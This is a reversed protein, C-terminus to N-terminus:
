LKRSGLACCYRMQVAEPRFTETGLGLKSDRWRRLVSSRMVSRRWDWEGAVRNGLYGIGDKM